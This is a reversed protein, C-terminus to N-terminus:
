SRVSLFRRQLFTRVPGDYFRDALWAILFVTLVSPISWAGSITAGHWGLHDMMPVWFLLLPEHLIYVGYSTLGLFSATGAYRIPMESSAGASILLPFVVLIVVVEYPRETHRIKPAMLLFLLVMVLLLPPVQSRRTGREWMHFVVIGMCYSFLVRPVGYLVTATAMGVFVSKFHILVGLMVVGSLAMLIKVASMGRRLFFAHFMNAVLEMFLSWSPNNFLFVAGGGAMGPLAPLLFLALPLRILWVKATLPRSATLFCAAFVGLGLGLAYLPYLRILRVKMFDATPWGAALRKQYALTLVFGSLMFFFDVALGAYAFSFGGSHIQIHYLVVSLAAVGRMADLTLFRHPTQALCDGQYTSQGAHVSATYDTYRREGRKM